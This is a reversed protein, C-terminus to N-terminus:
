VTGEKKRLEDYQMHAFERCREPHCQFVSGDNRRIVWKSEPPYIVCEYTDANWVFPIRCSFRGHFEPHALLGQIMKEEDESWSGAKLTVQNPGRRCRAINGDIVDYQHLTHGKIVLVLQVSELSIGM